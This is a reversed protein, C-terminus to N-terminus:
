GRHWLKWLLALGALVGGVILYVIHKAAAEVFMVALKSRWKPQKSGTASIADSCMCRGLAQHLEDIMRQRSQWSFAQESEKPIPGCGVSMLRYVPTAISYKKLIDTAIPLQQNILPRIRDFERSAGYDIADGFHGPDEMAAFVSTEWRKLCDLYREVLSVFNRLVEHESIGAM